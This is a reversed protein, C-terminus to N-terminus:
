KLLELIEKVTNEKGVVLSSLASKREQLEMIKEEVTDKVILKYVQVSKQQGMRYARDTAQNM